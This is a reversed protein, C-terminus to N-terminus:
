FGDGETAHLPGPLQGLVTTPRPPAKRFGRSQLLACMAPHTAYCRAEDGGGSRIFHVCADLLDCGAEAADAPFFLDAVLGRRRQRRTEFQIVAYGRLEGAASRSCLVHYEALPYERYRWNLAAAGRQAVAQYSDRCAEWLQDFEAGFRGSLVRVSDPLRPVRFCLLDPVTGLIRGAKRGLLRGIRQQVSLPRVWEGSDVMEEYGQRLRVSLM